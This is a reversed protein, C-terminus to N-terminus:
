NALGLAPGHDTLCARAAARSPFLRSRWVLGDRAVILQWTTGTHLGHRGVPHRGSLALLAVEPALLEQEVVDVSYIGDVLAAGLAEVAADASM